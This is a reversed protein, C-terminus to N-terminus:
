KIMGGRIQKYQECTLNKLINCEPQLHFTMKCCRVETDRRRETPVDDNLVKSLISFAVACHHNELPSIDNYRLALDTQANIQRIYSHCLQTM